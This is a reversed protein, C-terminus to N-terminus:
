RFEILKLVGKIELEDNLLKTLVLKEGKVIVKKDKMTVVIKDLDFYDIKIYNVINIKNDIITIGEEIFFSNLKKFKDM